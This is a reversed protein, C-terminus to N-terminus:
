LYNSLEILNNDPDRIYISIIKGCAGTREIPGEEIAINKNRLDEMVDSIPTDVILCVDMAGATPYKAKPTYENGVQHLNIKQNGFHLAHRDGKFTRVDVGLVEQYFWCTKEINSVTFVIHDIRNTIIPM